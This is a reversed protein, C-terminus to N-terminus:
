TGATPRTMDNVRSAADIHGPTSGGLAARVPEVVEDALWRVPNDISPAVPALVVHRVGADVLGLIRDRVTAPDDLAPPNSSAARRPSARRGCQGAAGLPRDNGPGPRDSRLARRPDGVAASAGRSRRVRPLELHRRAGRRRALSRRGGAGIRLRRAHATPDAEAACIAGRLRYWRGTSTSRSPRPGCGNRSSAHRASPTSRRARRSWRSATPTCSASWRPGKRGPGCRPQRGSRHRVRPPRRLDPRRHGGDERPGRAAPHSQQHRHDRSAPPDDARRARCPADVGGARPGHRRRAVPRPPGLALRTRVCRARRGRAVDRAGARLHHQGPQDQRGFTELPQSATM